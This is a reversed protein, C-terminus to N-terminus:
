VPPEVLTTARIQGDTAGIDGTAAAPRVATTGGTLGICQRQDSQWASALTVLGRRREQGEEGGADEGVEGIQKTLCPPRTPSGAATPSPNTATAMVRATAHSGIWRHNGRRDGCWWGGSRWGSSRRDGSNGVADLDLPYLVTGGM